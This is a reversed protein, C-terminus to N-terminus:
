CGTTTYYADPRDATGDNCISGREAKCCGQVKVPVQACASGPRVGTRPSIALPAMALAAAFAATRIVMTRNM